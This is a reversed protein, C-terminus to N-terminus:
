TGGFNVFTLGADRVQQEVLPKTPAMFIVLGDPYWRYFNYMVVSAILTKGLGTPLCVLTNEFVARESIALQYPRIPYKGSTPYIWSDAVNTDMTLVSCDTGAFDRYDPYRLSEGVPGM